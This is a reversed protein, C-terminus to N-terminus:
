LALRLVILEALFEEFTVPACPRHLQPAEAPHEHWGVKANDKGYIRRDDSILAFAVRETATNFFAEVFSGNILHVRLSLVDADLSRVTYAAVGPSAACVQLVRDRLAEPTEQSM